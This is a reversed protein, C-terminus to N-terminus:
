RFTCGPTACCGTRLPRWNRALAARSRLITPALLETQYCYAPHFVETSALTPHLLHQGAMCFKFFEQPRMGNPVVLVAEDM